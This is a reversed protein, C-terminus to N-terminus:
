TWRDERKRRLIERFKRGTDVSLDFPLGRVCGVLHKMADYPRVFRAPAVERAALSQIAERIVKSRTTGRKRALRALASRTASDLRVSVTM